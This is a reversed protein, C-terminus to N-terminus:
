DGATFQPLRFGRQIDPGSLAEYYEYSLVEKTFIVLCNGAQHAAFLFHMVTWPSVSGHAYHIAFRGLTYLQKIHMRFAETFSAVYNIKVGHKEAVRYVTPAIAPYHYQSVSPFLHHISQYNLAGTMFATVPSGYGYDLTTAVQSHAWELPFRGDPQEKDPFDVLPSVHSVQFNFALYYGTICEALLSLAVFSVPEVHFYVLPLCWRWWAWFAKSLLQTATERWGLDNVRIKGNTKDVVTDTIDQLRFKLALLGYLISLYVYQFRYVPSWRQHLCVRRIDGTAAVPLDPDIGMVNTYVHHGLIHQNHWSNLSAGAFWDMCFKGIWQWGKAASGIATHSADHMVHLLVIAQFFGFVVAGAARVYWPLAGKDGYILLAFSLAACLLMVALRQFGPIPDKPDLKRDRFFAGVQARVEAYFGSDPQFQPFETTRVQGVCFKALMKGPLETFPHYSIFLDTCDRGAALLLVHRGGPHRDLWPTIDYVKTGIYVWCSAPTNHRAVEQWTYEPLDPLRPTTVPFSSRGNSGSAESSTKQTPLPGNRRNIIKPAPEVVTM